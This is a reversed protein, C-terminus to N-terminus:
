DRTLLLRDGALRKFYKYLVYLWVGFLSSLLWCQNNRLPHLVDQKIDLLLSIPQTIIDWSNWRLYRGLYIGYGCLVLFSLIAWPVFKYSINRRLYQEVNQLSLFGMIVGSLAASFLILLDYWQPVDPRERLHFIDTIIYMANPFFLLWAAMYIWPMKKDTTKNIRHSLYLPIVALFINWPIFTFVLTRTRLVRALLLGAIFLQMPVLWKYKKYFTM